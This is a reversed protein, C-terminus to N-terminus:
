AVGKFPENPGQADFASLPLRDPIARGKDPNKWVGYMPSALTVQQLSKIISATM